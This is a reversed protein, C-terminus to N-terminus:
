KEKGSFILSVTDRRKREREREEVIHCVGVKKEMAKTKEVKSIVLIL